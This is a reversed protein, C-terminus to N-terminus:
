AIVTATLNEITKTARRLEDIADEHKAQLEKLTGRLGTERSDSAEVVAEKIIPTLFAVMESIHRIGYVSNPSATGDSTVGSSVECPGTEFSASRRSSSLSSAAVSSAAAGADNIANPDM